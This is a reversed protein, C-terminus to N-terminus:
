IQGIKIILESEKVSFNWGEKNLIFSLNLYALLDIMSLEESKLLAQENQNFVLFKKIVKEEDLVSVAFATESFHLVKIRASDTLYSFLYSFFSKFLKEDCILKNEFLHSDFIFTIPRKAVLSKIKQIALVESDHSEYTRIRVLDHFRSLLLDVNIIATQILDVSGTHEKNPDHLKIKNIGVTMQQLTNRVDHLMRRAFFDFEQAMFNM